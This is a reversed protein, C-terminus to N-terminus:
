HEFPLTVDGGAASVTPVSVGVQSYLIGALLLIAVVKKM